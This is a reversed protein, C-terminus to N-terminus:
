RFGCDHGLALLKNRTITHGNRYDTFRKNGKAKNCRGCLIQLNEPDLALEPFLKRPKIHDVNLNKPKPHIGCCMCQTGYRNVTEDRLKRWEPSFLFGDSSRRISEAIENDSMSLLKVVYGAKRQRAILQKVQKSAM